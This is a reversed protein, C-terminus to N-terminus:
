PVQPRRWQALEELVSRAEGVLPVSRPTDTKTKLFRVVGQAFDVAPWTLLRIENKRGSTGMAVVVLPFLMPNTSQRCAALLRQREDSTLFRVRGRGPSPKRIRAMPNTDLWGCEVAFTLASSFFAMYHYITPPKLRQSMRGKWLRLCDPTVEELPLPGLDRLLMTFFTRQQYQTLPEHQLAVDALYQEFIESLTRPSGPLAHPVSLPANPM